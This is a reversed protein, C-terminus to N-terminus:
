QNNSIPVLILKSRLAKIKEQLTTIEAQLSAAEDFIPENAPNSYYYSKIDYDPIQEPKGKDNLFTFRLYKRQGTILVEKEPITNYTDLKFAKFPNFDKNKIHYDDIANKLNTLSERKVTNSKHKTTEIACEFCDSYENYTIEFTRYTIIPINM